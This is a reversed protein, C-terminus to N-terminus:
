PQTGPQPEAAQSPPQITIHSYQDLVLTTIEGDDKRLILRDLWPNHPM